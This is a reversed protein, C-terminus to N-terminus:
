FIWAYGLWIAVSIHVALTIFMIVTFPLHVAHWYHFASAIKASVLSKQLLLGHARIAGAVAVAERHSLTKSHSVRRALTKLSHNARRLRLWLRLSDVFGHAPTYASFLGQIEKLLAAGGPHSAVGASLKNLEAIVQEGSLEAGASDRPILAYLFRGVIGSSAVSLMTWFSIAAIGGAKFTSHYIILLPGLLCMFIHVELWRSLKGLKWLARIRKRSSYMAVGVTILTAGSIGLAHGVTGSPKFTNYEPSFPRENLPLIYYAWGASGVAIVACLVVLVLVAIFIKHAM